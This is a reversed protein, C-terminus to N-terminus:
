QFAEVDGHVPPQKSGVTTAPVAGRAQVKSNEFYDVALPLVLDFYRKRDLKLVNRPLADFFRTVVPHPNFLKKNPEMCYWVLMVVFSPVPDETLKIYKDCAEFLIVDTVDTNFELETEPDRCGHKFFNKHNHMATKFSKLKAPPVFRYMEDTFWMRPGRRGNNIGEIIGYAAWALTHIAVPDEENFYMRIATELQRVAASRKTIISWSM